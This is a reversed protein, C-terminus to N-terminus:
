TKLNNDQQQVADLERMAFKRRSFARRAYRDVRNLEKFVEESVKKLGGNREVLGHRVRGIRALDVQAEAVRRSLEITAKDKSQSVIENALGEIESSYAVDAFLSLSLGHRRANKSSRARGHRTKPGTSKKANLRNAEIKRQSTM